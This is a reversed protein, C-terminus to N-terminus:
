PSGPAGPMTPGTGTLPDIDLSLVAYGDLEFHEVRITVQKSEALEFKRSHTKPPHWTWDDIVLEDDIWVRICNTRLRWSGAPFGVTATAITGFHDAPLAAATVAPDLDIGSPGNSGYQLDLGRVTCRVGHERAQRQWADLDLRPNVSSAFVLVDWAVPALAGTAVQTDSATVATLEYPLVSGTAHATVILRRNGDDRILEVGPPAELRADTLPEPGLLRYVHRDPLTEVATLLPGQWDYPGWKTMVIHERGRLQPRAGVPNTEGIPDPEDVRSPPLDINGMRKLFAESTQDADVEIEVNTMRNLGLTTPGVRRLQIGIADGDFTNQLIANDEVATPNAAAWPLKLINTDRDWWLFVGCANNRFTNGNIYNARGHEMNVGGRETGYPMDGNDEITNQAIFSAQSYGGWVGCIANGVLRNKLIRNGFSFTLELGHAAAYSFDNNAIINRNSGRKSYWQPNPNPNVEGLAESGAFGFLGDGCHTASNHTITNRECQEFMLIGASDQGRNYTGHSYGRVRFDFANRSIVNRSSRWMALGWGSGFSCDNDYIEAGGVRDLVIGNQTGRARVRRVKINACDEIYIGAGYSSLWENDDNAHPRLWDSPDERRPTSRLRQRFNGSVDCDEILLGNALRAHIAAKFGSIRAGRLTVGRSTISVGTGSYADPPVHEAGHLVQGGFDVTINEGTIHIVGNGDADAIWPRDVRVTCDATIEVNDRDVVVVPPEAVAASLAVFAFLSTPRTRLGSLEKWM